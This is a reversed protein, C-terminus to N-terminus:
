QKNYPVMGKIVPLKVPQLAPKVNLVATIQLVVANLHQIASLFTSM